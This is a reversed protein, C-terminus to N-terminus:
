LYKKNYCTKTGPYVNKGLCNCESSSKSVINNNFAGARVCPCFSFILFFSSCLILSGNVFPPQSGLSQAEQPPPHPLLPPPHLTSSWCRVMVSVMSSSVSTSHAMLKMMLPTGRMISIYASVIGRIVPNKSMRGFCILLGLPLSFVLTVVFIEVSVVMGGALQQLMVSLSM